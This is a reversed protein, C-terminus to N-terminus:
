TLKQEASWDRSGSAAIGIPIQSDHSNGTFIRSPFLLSTHLLLLSVHVNAVAVTDFAYETWNGYLLRDRCCAGAVVVTIQWCPVCANAFWHHFQCWVRTDSDCESSASKTGHSFCRKFVFIRLDWGIISNTLVLFDMIRICSENNYHNTTIIRSIFGNEPSIQKWLLLFHRIHQKQYSRGAFKRNTLSYLM